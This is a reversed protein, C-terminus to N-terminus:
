DTVKVIEFIPALQGLTPAAPGSAALEELTAPRDEYGQQLFAAKPTGNVRGEKERMENLSVDIYRPPYKREEALLEKEQLDEFWDLLELRAAGEYAPLRYAM